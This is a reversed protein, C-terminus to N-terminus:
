YFTPLIHIKAYHSKLSTEHILFLFSIELEKLNPHNRFSTSVGEYTATLQVTCPTGFLGVDSRQSMVKLYIYGFEFIQHLFGSGDLTRLHTFHLEILTNYM